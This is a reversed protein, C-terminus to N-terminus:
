AGKWSANAGEKSAYAVEVREFHDVRRLSAYAEECTAYAEECTTYVLNLCIGSIAWKGYQDWNAMNSLQFHDVLTELSQGCWGGCEM